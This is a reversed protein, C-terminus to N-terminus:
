MVNCYMIYEYIYIYICIYIHNHYISPHIYIHSPIIMYVYSYKGCDHIGQIISAQITRKRRCNQSRVWAALFGVGAQRPLIERAPSLLRCPVRWRYNLQLCLQLLRDLNITHDHIHIMIHIMYIYTYTHIM